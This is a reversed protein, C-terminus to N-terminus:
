TYYKAQSNWLEYYKGNKNKILDDHTGFQVIKGKDFVAIKDCFYCSSLRHSILIATKNKDKIYKNFHKYINAESVADLASTPEDLIIIGSDKYLCRALAIKQAEGGSIEVGEDSCDHYIYTDYKHKMNEVTTLMGVEELCLTLKDIDYTQTFAINEGIPLSFVSFDQSTVSFADYYQQKDFTRIDINNITIKGGYDDYLGCLLKIFTSKGSGNEGVCAVTEGVSLKISVGDLVKQSNNPYSFSVNELEISNIKNPVNSYGKKDEMPYDIIEYYLKEKSDIYTMVGVSSSLTKIGEVIQLFANTYKVLLAISILGEIASIGIFLYVMCCILSGIIVNVAANVGRCKGIKNNILIGNTFLEDTAHSLILPECQFIRIDKGKKYDSCLQSYFSFLKNKALFDMQLNFIKKNFIVSFISILGIGIIVTILLIIRYLNSMSFDLNISKIFPVIMIISVIISIIGSILSSIIFLLSIFMSGSNNLDDSYKKVKEIFASNELTKYSVTMLKNIISSKEYLYVKNNINSWLYQASVKNFFMVVINIITVPIINLIIIKYSANNSLLEITRYLLYVNIFPFLAKIINSFLVVFFINKNVSKLLKLSRFFYNTKM